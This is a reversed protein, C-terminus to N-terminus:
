SDAKLSYTMHIGEHLSGTVLCGNKMIRACREFVPMSASDLNVSVDLHMAKVRGQGVANPGLEMSAEAEISNYAADRAELSGSLAAVLGYSTAYHAHLIDPNESSIM